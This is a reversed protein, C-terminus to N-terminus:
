ETIKKEWAKCVEYHDVACSMVLVTDSEKGICLSRGDESPYLCKINANYYNYYFATYTSNYKAYDDWSPTLALIALIAFKM